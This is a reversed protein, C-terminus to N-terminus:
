QFHGKGDNYLVYNKASRGFRRPVANSGILLDQDGDHDLDAAKVVSANIELVPFDTSLKFTGAENLYLLAQLEQGQLYENGGSVILLDQDGDNDADFFLNDTEENNKYKEFAPQESVYFLSDKDQLFLLGSQKKGGGIYVDSLGDKNIDAVAIKPGEVGKSYPILPERGFEYSPSELHQFNLSITDPALMTSKKVEDLSGESAMQHDLVLTSGATINQIHQYQGGPWVVTISDILERSGIGITLEPAVASLYGRSTYNELYISLTDSVLKIKAGIGM